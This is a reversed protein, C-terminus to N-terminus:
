YVQKNAQAEVPQLSAEEVFHVLAEMDELARAAVQNNIRPVSTLAARALRCQEALFTCCYAKTQARAFIALVEEVQEGTIPTEQQYVERLRRQDGPNTHELAHLIPLSKKRHYVDGAPTKGLEATTAWVGLLDDRVQFAVGMAHGFGRLREITERDGTGLLAGMEAACGMLVGTKRSIMDVYKAVSVTQWGEFSMDLYQGESLVVCARDLTAGLRAAVSGEVGEDVVEWLALRALAFLGDGSNIAQPIGWLKWLTARHRREADGDEIDDHILTFNHTLEIAAAAPLARRLYGPDSAPLGAAGAAEYALLLLTPRLLKGPNNATPTFNADVWGLHYQIQGYYSQLDTAGSQIAAETVKMVSRHLAEQINKQYRMLTPQISRSLAM